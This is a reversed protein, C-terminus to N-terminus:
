REVSQARRIAEELARDAPVSIHPEVGTQEWGKGTDPDFPRGVPIFARYGGPLSVTRGFHGAGATTEGILTARQTRKLALAFGEGASATAKSTLVFIRATGLGSRQKSPVAIWERRVIEAPATIRKLTPGDTMPNGGREEVARRTDMWLLTTPTEFFRSFMVDGEIPGGGLYQRADIILTTANSFGDLARHLRDLETASGTFGHLRMYAIGPALWETKGVGNQTGTQTSPSEQAATPPMLNLHGERHVRQLDETVAAAVEADTKLNSYAGSALKGRLEAAYQKGIEAYVFDRELVDALEEIANRAVTRRDSGCAVIFFLALFLHAIVPAATRM